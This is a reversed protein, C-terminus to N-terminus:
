RGARVRGGGDRARSTVFTGRMNIQQILDFRAIDIAETTSLNIASANNLRIDIGGFFGATRQMTRECGKSGNNEAM